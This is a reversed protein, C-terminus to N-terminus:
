PTSVAWKQHTPPNAPRTKKKIFSWIEDIQVHTLNLDRLFYENVQRAHTGALRVWKTVSNKSHGTVRAVARIGGKESDFSLSPPSRTTPNTVWFIRDWAM